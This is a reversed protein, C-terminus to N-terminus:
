RIAEEQPILRKEMVWCPEVVTQVIGDPDTYQWYGPDESFVTYGLREYLSRARPNDKAAAIVAWTYGRERLVQEAAEILRTGIHHRQFPEMVRLSYLYGRHRGDAFSSDSSAFQIFVQGIPYGGVDAVLMLRRGARQEEFTQRFLRRFHRYQGGWELKPLDAEVAPRITCTLHLSFSEMEM